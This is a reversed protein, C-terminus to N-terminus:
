VSSHRDSLRDLEHEVRVSSHRDSLQDLEYWGSFRNEESLGAHIVGDRGKIQDLRDCEKQYEWRASTLAPGEYRQAFAETNASQTIAMTVTSAVNGM